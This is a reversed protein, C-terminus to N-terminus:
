SANEQATGRATVLTAVELAKASGLRKEEIQRQQPRDPELACQAAHQHWGASNHAM